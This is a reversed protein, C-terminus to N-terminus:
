DIPRSDLLLVYLHIIVWDKHGKERSRKTEWGDGMDKGVVCTVRCFAILGDFAM